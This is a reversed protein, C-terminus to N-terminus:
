LSTADQFNDLNIVVRKGNMNPSYAPLEDPPEEKMAAETMASLKYTLHPNGLKMNKQKLTELQM